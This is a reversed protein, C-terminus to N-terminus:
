PCPPSSTCASSASAGSRGRRLEAIPISSTNSALFRADPAVDDLQAFLRGKARPDEVIAEIVADAAGLDELRRTHM